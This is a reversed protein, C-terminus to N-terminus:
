ALYLELKTSVYKLPVHTTLPVVSLNKNYILMIPNKSNTKFGVYETIGPYKKKLFHTKSIPGNMLRTIKNKKILKFAKNFCNEIYKNSSRNIKKFINKFKYDIDIINITNKLAKKIEFIEKIYFKYKLKKMQKELLDKSGILIIKNRSNKFRRSKFYKFLVESFISNPEGLIVLINKSNM